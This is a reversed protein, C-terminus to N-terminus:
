ANKRHWTEEKQAVEKPNNNAMDNAWIGTYLCTKVTQRLPGVEMPRAIRSVMRRAIGSLMPRAIGSVMPRAIQSVMSSSDSKGNLSSDWKGNSSSDSKGNSSSDSKGNRFDKIFQTNSSFSSRIGVQLRPSYM